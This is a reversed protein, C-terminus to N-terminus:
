TGVQTIRINAFGRKDLAERKLRKLVAERRRCAFLVVGCDCVRPGSEAIMERGIIVM